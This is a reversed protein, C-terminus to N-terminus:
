DCGYSTHEWHLTSAGLYFQLYLCRTSESVLDQTDVHASDGDVDVQISYQGPESLPSEFDAYAKGEGSAELQRKEEFLVEDDKRIWVTFVYEAERRHNELRIHDIVANPESSDSLCGALSGIAAIGTTRLFTRRSPM